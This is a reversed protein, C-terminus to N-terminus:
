ITGIVIKRMNPILTTILLSELDVTSLNLDENERVYTVNQKIFCAVRGGKKVQGSTGEWKGDNREVDYGPLFYMSDPINNYLWTESLTMVDINLKSFEIKFIDFKNCISQCNLHSFTLANHTHNSYHYLSYKM